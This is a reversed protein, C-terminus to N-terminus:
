EKTLTLTKKVAGTKRRYKGVDCSVLSVFSNEPARIKKIDSANPIKIDSEELTAIYLGLAEQAQEMAERLTNGCTQCGELDPFEVWFVGDEEHFIAPYVTIM